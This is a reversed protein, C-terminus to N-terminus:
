DCQVGVDTVILFHVLMDWRGGGGMVVVRGGVEGGGVGGGGIHCVRLTIFNLSFGPM